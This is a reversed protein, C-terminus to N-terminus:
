PEPAPAQTGGWLARAAIWLLLEAILSLARSIVAAGLAGAAGVAPTLGTVLVAERVGLGAPAALVVFGAVQAIVYFGMATLAAEQPAGLALSMAYGHLAVLGWYILQALPLGPPLIPGSGEPALLARVKDPYVSRDVLLLVLAGLASGVFLPAALRGLVGAL